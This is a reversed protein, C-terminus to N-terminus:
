RCKGQERIELGRAELAARLQRAYDTAVDSDWGLDGMVEVLPDTKSAKLAAAMIDASVHRDNIM